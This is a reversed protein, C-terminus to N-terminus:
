VDALHRDLATITTSCRRLLGLEEFLHTAVWGGDSMAHGIGEVTDPAGAADFETPATIVVYKGSGTGECQEGPGEGPGDAPGGSGGGPGLPGSRLLGHPDLGLPVCQDLTWGGPDIVVRIVGCRTVSIVLCGEVFQSQREGVL